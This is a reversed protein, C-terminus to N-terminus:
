MTCKNVQRRSPCSSFSESYAIEPYLQGDFEPLRLDILIYLLIGTLSVPIFFAWCFKWYIGLDIGLMFKVDRIFNSMGPSISLVSILIKSWLILFRCKGHSAVLVLIRLSFIFSSGIMVSLSLSCLFCIHLLCSYSRSFSFLVLQVSWLHLPNRRNRRYRPRLHYIWRRLLRRPGIDVPWGLTHIICM